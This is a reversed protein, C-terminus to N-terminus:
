SFHQLVPGIRAQQATTTSNKDENLLIDFNKQFAKNNFAMMRYGEMLYNHIAGVADVSPEAKFMSGFDFAGDKDDINALAPIHFQEIGSIHIDPSEHAEQDDHLNVVYGIGYEYRFKEGGAQSINNLAGGRFIMNEKLSEGHANKYGKVDRINRINMPRM